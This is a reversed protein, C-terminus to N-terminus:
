RGWECAPADISSWIRAWSGTASTHQPLRGWERKKGEVYQTTVHKGLTECVLPDAEM